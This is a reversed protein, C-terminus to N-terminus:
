SGEPTPNGSSIVSTPNQIAESPYVEYLNFQEKIEQNADKAYKLIKPTIFVLFQSRQQAFDSSKFLTFLSGFPFPDGPTTTGAGGSPNTAVTQATPPRDFIKRSSQRILGGIVISEGARVFQETVIKSQEISIAGQIDPTGLASIEVTVSMDVDNGQAYPHIELTVGVNQFEINPVGNESFVPFGIRTGSQITATGGSKVSVTPNELVRVAALSKFYNLKPLIDDLNGTIAGSTTSSSSLPDFAFQFNAGVKPIPNWRFNFNKTFNKNVEVFHATVQITNARSPPHPVERVDIANIIKTNPGSYLSAINGAKDKAQDSYVAGELIFRGKLSRVTVEDLGIEKEITKAIIRNSDPSLRSLDVIMKSDSIVRQIREKDESLFVDGDIVIKNNMRSITIGEVDILLKRIQSLLDEPDTPYVTIDVADRQKGTNDYVLLITKGSAKPLLTISNKSRNARFNSINPNGVTVNGLSFKFYIEKPQNAILFHEAATALSTALLMFVLSGIFIRTVIMTRKM